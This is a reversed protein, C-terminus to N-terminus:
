LGVFIGPMIHRTVPYLAVMRSELFMFFLIVIKYASKCPHLIEDGDLLTSDVISLTVPPLFQM